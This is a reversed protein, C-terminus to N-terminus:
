GGADEEGGFIRGVGGSVPQEGDPPQVWGIGRGPDKFAGSVVKGSGNQLEPCQVTMLQEGMPQRLNEGRLSFEQLSGSFWGGRWSDCPPEKAFSDGILRLESQCKQFIEVVHPYPAEV